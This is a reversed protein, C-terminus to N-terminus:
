VEIARNLMLESNQVDQYCDVVVLFRKKACQRASQLIRSMGAPSIPVHSRRNNCSINGKLLDTLSCNDPLEEPLLMHTQLLVRENLGAWIM